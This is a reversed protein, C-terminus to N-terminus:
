MMVMKFKIQSMKIQIPCESIGVIIFDVLSSSRLFHSASQYSYNIRDDHEKLPMRTVNIELRM